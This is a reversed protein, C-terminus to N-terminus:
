NLNYTGDTVRFIARYLPSRLIHLRKLGLDGAIGLVNNERSYIEDIGKGLSDRALIDKRDENLWVIRQSIGVQRGPRLKFGERSRREHLYEQKIGMTYLLCM